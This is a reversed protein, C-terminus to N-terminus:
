ASPRAGSAGDDVRLKSVDLLDLELFQRVIEVGYDEATAAYNLWAAYERQSLPESGFEARQSIEDHPRALPLLRQTTFDLLQAQLIHKVIALGLGTGGLDRSRAPDVRYFREGLRPILRPPIGPGTDAVSIEVLNRDHESHHEDNEVVRASVRVAGGEPTFKVANDLINLLVQTIRDADAHVSPMGQEVEQTIAIKKAAAQTRILASTNGIVPRIDVPAMRFNMEGLEIRSLTLLDDVLRQLRSSQNRIIELFKEADRIRFAEGLPGPQPQGDGAADDLLDLGLDERLLRALGEEGAVLGDDEVAADHRDHQEHDREQGEEPHLLAGGDRGGRGPATGREARSASPGGYGPSCGPSPSDARHSAAKGVPRKRERGARGFDGAGLEARDRRDRSRRPHARSLAPSGAIM